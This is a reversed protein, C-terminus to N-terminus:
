KEKEPPWRGAKAAFAILTTLCTAVEAHPTTACVWGDPDIVNYVINDETETPQPIAFGAGKLAALTKTQHWSVFASGNPADVKRAFGGEWATETPELQPTRLGIQVLWRGVQTGSVAYIEGLQKLSLYEFADYKNM